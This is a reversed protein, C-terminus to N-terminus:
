HNLFGKIDEVDKRVYGKPPLELEPYLFKIQTDFNVGESFYRVLREKIKEVKGNMGLLEFSYLIDKHFVPDLDKILVRTNNPDFTKGYEILNLGFVGTSERVSSYSLGVLCRERENFIVDLTINRHFLALLRHAAVVICFLVKEENLNIGDWEDRDRLVDFFEMQCDDRLQAVTYGIGELYISFVSNEVLDKKKVISM